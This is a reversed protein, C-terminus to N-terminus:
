CPIGILVDCPPNVLIDHTTGGVKFPSFNAGSHAGIAILDASIADAEALLSEYAAGQEVRVHVGALEKHSAIIMERKEELFSEMKRKENVAIVDGAYQEIKDGIYTDPINFAHMLHINGTEALELALELAADASPSFDSGVLVQQYANSCAHRVMLVPRSGRRIVRDINTGTFLDRLRAKRHMGMIILGAAVEEARALIAESIDNHAIVRAEHGIKRFEAQVALYRSLRQEGEAMSEGPPSVYVVHLVASQAAALNIARSLARDAESSFDIALLLNKM